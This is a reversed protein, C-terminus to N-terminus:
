KRGLFRLRVSFARAQGRGYTLFQPTGSVNNVFNPNGNNTINDFGFRWAWLYHIARFQREFHLNISFYNPYRHDNPRGLLFGEQDVVGFPYGTRYEVLYSATLSRTVFNLLGPGAKHPVPLWGWMHIRHPTDWALPGPMQASFIPNQLSYDVAASTHASSRTYGMFWEYKGAFTRKTSFTVADYRDRRTNRLLYTAGDYFDPGAVPTLSDFAFGDSGGRHTFNASGYLNWPLKREVSLGTTRYYPARLTQQDVIFNTAVPGHVLGGPLYFTALSTQEQQRSVLDLSIADYYAGWGASFKTGKLAAPSWAASIRPAPEFTRVIENWELRLGAELTLGDRV